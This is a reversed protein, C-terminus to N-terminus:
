CKVNLVIIGQLKKTSQSVMNGMWERLKQSLEGFPSADSVETRKAFSHVSEPVTCLVTCHQFDSAQVLSQILGLTESQLM